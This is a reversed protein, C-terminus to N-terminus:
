RADCKDPVGKKCRLVTGGAAFRLMGLFCLVLGVTALLSDFCSSSSKARNSTNSELVASCM